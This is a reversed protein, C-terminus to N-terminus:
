NASRRLRLILLTSILIVLVGVVLIAILSGSNIITSSSGSRVTFSGKQGAIDVAYTGPQSRSVTFKVPQTGQPGVGVM